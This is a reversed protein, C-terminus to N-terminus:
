YGCQNELMDIYIHLLNKEKKDRLHLLKSYIPEIENSFSKVGFRYRVYNKEKEFFDKSQMDNCYLLFMALLVKYTYDYSLLDKKRVREAYRNMLMEFLYFDSNYLLSKLSENEMVDYIIDDFAFAGGIVTVRSSDENEYLELCFPDSFPSTLFDFREYNVDFVENMWIRMDEICPVINTMYDYYVNYNERFFDNYHIIEAFGSLASMQKAMNFSDYSLLGYKDQQSYCFNEGSWKYFFLVKYVSDRYIPSGDLLGTNKIYSIISDYNSYLIKRTLKFLENHYEDDSYFPISDNEPIYRHSADPSQEYKSNEDIMDFYQAISYIANCHSIEIETNGERLCCVKQSHQKQAVSFEGVFLAIFIVILKNKM